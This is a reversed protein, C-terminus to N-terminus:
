RPSRGLHGSQSRPLVDFVTEWTTTEGIAVVVTSVEAGLGDTNPPVTTKEAVTALDEPVPVGVPV